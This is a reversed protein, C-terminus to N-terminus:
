YVLFALALFAVGALRQSTRLGALKRPDTFVDLAWARFARYRFLYAWLKVLGLSLFAALIWGQAHEGALVREWTHVLWWLYFGFGPLMWPSRGGPPFFTDVIRRRAPASLIGLLQAEVLAVVGIALAVLRFYSM